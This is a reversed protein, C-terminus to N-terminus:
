TKITKGQSLKAKERRWVSSGLGVSTLASIEPM